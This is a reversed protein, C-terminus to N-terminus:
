LSTQTRIIKWPYIFSNTNEDTIKIQLYPVSVFTPVTIDCWWTGNSAVIAEGAYTINTSATGVKLEISVADLGQVASNTSTGSYLVCNTLRLTSDSFYYTSSIYGQAEGRLNTVTCSAPAVADGAFAIGAAVGIVLGALMTIVRRM